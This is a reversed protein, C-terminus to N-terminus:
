PSRGFVSESIDYVKAKRLETVQPKLRLANEWLAKGRSWRSPKTLRVHLWQMGRTLYCKDGQGQTLQTLISKTKDFRKRGRLKRMRQRTQRRNHELL